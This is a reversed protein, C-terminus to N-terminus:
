KSLEYQDKFLDFLCLYVMANPITKIYNLSLGRFLGNRLGEEKYLTVLASFINPYKARAEAGGIQLRRRLIDIPYGITQAFMGSAGGYIAREWYAAKKGGRKESWEKFMDFTAFKIGCYCGAGMVSILAGSYLNRLGGEAVAQRMVTLMQAPSQKQGEAALLALRARALDLPYTCVVATSGACTGGLFSTTSASPSFPAVIRKYQENSALQIGLYPFCRVVAVLNGRWFGWIGGEKWVAPVMKVYSSKHPSTQYIIKVREVPAVVTRAVAGAIGGLAFHPLADTM